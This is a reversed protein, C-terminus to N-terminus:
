RGYKVTLIAHQCLDFLTEATKVHPAKNKLAYKIYRLGSFSHHWGVVLKLEDDRATQTIAEALEFRTTQAYARGPKSMEEEDLWFLLVGREHAAKIHYQEWDVQEYYMKDTFEGEMRVERRPNYVNVDIFYTRSITDLMLGAAKQWNGAGQIPGALFIGPQKRVDDHTFAPCQFITASM